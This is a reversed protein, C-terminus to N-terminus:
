ALATKLDSISQLLVDLDIAAVKASLGTISEEAFNPLDSLASRLKTLKIAAAADNKKETSYSPSLVGCPEWRGIGTVDINHPIGLALHDWPNCL